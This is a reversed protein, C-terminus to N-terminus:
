RDSWLRAPLHRFVVCQLEFQNVPAMDDDLRVFMRQLTAVPTLSRLAALPSRFPAPRALVALRVRSPLISLHDKSPVRAWGGAGQMFDSSGLVGGMSRVVIDLVRQARSDARDREAHTPAQAQEQGAAATQTSPTQTQFFYSSLRLTRVAQALWRVLACQLVAHPAYRDALAPLVLHLALLDVPVDSLPGFAHTRLPLVSPVLRLTASVLGVGAPALPLSITSRTLGHTLDLSPHSPCSTCTILM